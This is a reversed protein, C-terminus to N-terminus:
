PASFLPPARLEVLSGNSITATVTILITFRTLSSFSHFGDKAKAENKGTFVSSFRGGESYRALKPSIFSSQQPRPHFYLDSFLHFATANTTNPTWGSARSATQSTQLLKEVGPLKLRYTDSVSQPLFFLCFSLFSSFCEVM